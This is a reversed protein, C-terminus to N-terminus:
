RSGKLAARGEETIFCHNATEGVEIRIYDKALLHELVNGSHSPALRTSREGPHAVLTKLVERQRTTLRKM